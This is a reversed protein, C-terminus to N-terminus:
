EIVEFIKPNSKLVKLSIVSDFIKFFSKYSSHFSKGNCYYNFDYIFGNETEFIKNVKASIFVVKETSLKKNKQFSYYIVYLFIVSVIVSFIKESNKM